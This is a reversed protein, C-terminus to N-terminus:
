LERQRWLNIAGVSKDGAEKALDAIDDDRLLLYQQQAYALIM